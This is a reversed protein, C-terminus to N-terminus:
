IDVSEESEVGTYVYYKEESSIIEGDHAVMCEAYCKDKELYSNTTGGLDHRITKCQCFLLLTFLYVANRM